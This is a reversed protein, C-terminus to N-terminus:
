QYVRDLLRSRADVDVYRVYKGDNSLEACGETLLVDVAEDTREKIKSGIRQYDYLRAIELILDERRMRTGAELLLHGAYALEELPISEVSRNARDTNRRILVSEPREAPWFFEKSAVLHDNRKMKREVRNLRKKIRKGLRTIHWRSITTRFAEDRKLPGYENVLEKLVGGARGISVDEFSKDPGKAVRPETWDSVHEEIGGREGEPIADIEVTEIDTTSAGGDTTMRGEVLREVKSEIESIESEKNSAWDPSWIRHITWGLDELVAQRTRDRDRATKSHHYAAGDCEIGLVYKGPKDPYRIALDISYGSSEVQTVVDFGQSELATYVV